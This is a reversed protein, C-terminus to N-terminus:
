RGGGDRLAPTRRAELAVGGRRVLWSRSARLGLGLGVGVLLVLRVARVMRRGSANLPLLPQPSSYHITIM